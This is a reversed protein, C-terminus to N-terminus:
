YVGAQEWDRNASWARYLTSLDEQIHFKADLYTAAVATSTLAAAATATFRLLPSSDVM